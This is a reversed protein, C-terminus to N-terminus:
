GRCREGGPGPPPCGDPFSDVHKAYKSPHYYLLYFVLRSLITKSKLFVYLGSFRCSCKGELLDDFPVWTEVQQLDNGRSDWPPRRVETGPRAGASARGGDGRASGPASTAEAAAALSTMTRWKEQSASHWATAAAGAAWAWAGGVGNGRAAFAMDDDGDDEDGGGVDFHM